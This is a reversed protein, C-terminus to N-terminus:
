ESMNSITSTSIPTAAACAVDAVDALLAMGDELGMEDDSHEGDSGGEVGDTVVRLADDDWETSTLPVDFNGLCVSVWVMDSIIDKYEFPIERKLFTYDKVRKMEREDHIRTGAVRRSQQVSEVPFPVRDKEKQGAKLRRQQPPMQVERGTSAAESRLGKYGRDVQLCGGDHCFEVAGSLMAQQQDSLKPSQGKSAFVGFGGPTIGIQFVCAYM